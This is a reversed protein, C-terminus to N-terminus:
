EEEEQAKMEKIKDSLEQLAAKFGDIGEGEIVHVALGDEGHAEGRGFLMAQATASEIQERFDALLKEHHEQHAADEDAMERLFAARAEDVSDFGARKVMDLMDGAAVAQGPKLGPNLMFHTNLRKAKELCKIQQDVTLMDWEILPFIRHAVATCQEETDWFAMVAQEAEDTAQREHRGKPRDSM